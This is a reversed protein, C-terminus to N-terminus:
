PATRNVENPKAVFVVAADDSYVETWGPIREIQYSERSKPAVLAVAIDYEKLLESLTGQLRAREAREMFGGQFLQDIRGDIFTKIGRFILYGGFNFENYIHRTLNAQRLYDVAGAPTNNKPPSIPGGSAFIGAAVLILCGVVRHALRGSLCQAARFLGPDDVMQTELRLFHFQGVLSSAILIPTVFAFISVMRVHLFMLHVLGIVLILRWFKIKVGFYLVLFLLLMLLLETTAHHKANLPTWESIYELAQGNYLKFTILLPEYGYPTLCGAVFAAALFIAWRVAVGIRTRRESTFVAEAALVAAIALGLTFSPHVNAWLIMVPLLLWNPSKQEEVARVLGAVWLVLLPYSFAHPRALFHGLGLFVAVMVVGAAVTIRMQRALVAFLLTYALALAVATILVVGRWSGFHYGVFLALQSLWEKAIWPQGEFTWSFQDKQPFSGTEWIQQGVVVHWYTDPDQLVYNSSTHQGALISAFILLFILLSLFGLTSSSLKPKIQQLPKIAVEHM